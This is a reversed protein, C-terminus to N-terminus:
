EGGKSDLSTVMLVQTINLHSEAFWSDKRVSRKITHENEGKKRCEWIFGDSLNKREFLRMPLKCVPCEYRDAIMRHNMCWTLVNM